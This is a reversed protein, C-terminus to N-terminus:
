SICVEIAVLVFMKTYGSFNTRLLLFPISHFYRLSFLLIRHIFFKCCIMCLPLGFILVCNLLVYWSYFQYHLSRACLVGIFNSVFFISTIEDNRVKDQKEKVSDLSNRSFYQKLAAKPGGEM